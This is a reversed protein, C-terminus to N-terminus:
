FFANENADKLDIIVEDLLKECKKLNNNKGYYVENVIEYINSNDFLM